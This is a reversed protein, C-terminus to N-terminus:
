KPPTNETTPKEEHSTEQAPVAPVTSGISQEVRTLTQKAKLVTEEWCKFGTRDAIFQRLAEIGEQTPYREFLTMIYDGHVADMWRLTPAISKMASAGEIKLLRDSAIRCYKESYILQNLLHVLREDKMHFLWDIAQGCVQERVEEPTADARTFYKEPYLAGRSKVMKLLLRAFDEKQEEPVKLEEYRNADWLITYALERVEDTMPTIQVKSEEQPIEPVAGTDSLTQKMKELAEKAWKVPEAWCRFGERDAIFSRLAVVGIRTPHKEISEVLFRSGSWDAWKLVPAVKAMASVGEFDLLMCAAGTGWRDSYLLQELLPLVRKDEAKRLWHLSVVLSQYRVPEPSGRLYKDPILAGRTEVVRLFMDMYEQVYLEPISIDSQTVMTYFSHRWAEDVPEKTNTEQSCSLLPVSICCFVGLGLACSLNKM